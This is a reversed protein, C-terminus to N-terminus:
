EYWERNRERALEERDRWDELAERQRQQEDEYAAPLRVEAPPRGEVHPQLGNRVDAPRASM